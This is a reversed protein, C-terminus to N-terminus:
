PTSPKAIASFPDLLTPNVPPDVTMEEGQATGKPRIYLQLKPNTDLSSPTMM